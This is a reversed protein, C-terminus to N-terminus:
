ALPDERSLLLELTGPLLQRLFFPLHIPQLMLQPVTTCGELHRLLLPRLEGDGEVLFRAHLHPEELRQALLTPFLLAVDLLDLPLVELHLTQPLSQRLYHGDDGGYRWRNVRRRCRAHCRKWRLWHLCSSTM